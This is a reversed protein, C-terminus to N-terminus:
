PQRRKQGFNFQLGVGLGVSWPNSYTVGEKMVVPNFYYKYVPEFYLSVSKSLRYELCLGAWVQWNTEVRAPTNNEIKVIRANPYDIVPAAERTSVLFSVAPGVKASLSLRNSEYLRYGILLPIQLYTYRNKTRDDAVHMVSDYISKQEYTYVIQNTAPNISYSVVNNYFGISDKSEYNIKYLGDDYVLGLGPTIGISFRSIHFAIGANVWFNVKSYSEPSQYFTAEPTVALSASFFQSSPRTNRNIRIIESPTVIVLTDGAPGTDLLKTGYPDMKSISSHIVAPPIFSNEPIEPAGVNIIAPAQASPQSTNTALIPENTAPTSENTAPIPENTAPIPENVAPTATVSASIEAVEPIKYNTKKDSGPATGWLALYAVTTIVVVAAAGGVMVNRSLNTFNLRLLESWLLKRSIGKWLSQSPEVRQGTLAERFLNDMQGGEEAKNILNDKM